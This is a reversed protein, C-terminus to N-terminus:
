KRTYRMLKKMLKITNSALTTNENPTYTRDCLNITVFNHHEGNNTLLDLHLEGNGGLFYAKVKDYSEYSWISDIGRSDKLGQLFFRELGRMASDDRAGEEVLELPGKLFAVNSEENVKTM